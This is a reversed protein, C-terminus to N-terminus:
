VSLELRATRAAEVEGTDVPGLVLVRADPFSRRLELAEATTAVGLATAGADLAGGAVTVAGHGYGDAKVVAWLEAGRTLRSRLLRTNHRIAALDVTVLSRAM